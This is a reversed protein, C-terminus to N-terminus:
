YDGWGLWGEKGIIRRVNFMVDSYRTRVTSCVMCLSACLGRGKAPLAAVCLVGRGGESKRLSDKEERAGCRVGLLTGVGSRECCVNWTDSLKQESGQRVWDDNFGM